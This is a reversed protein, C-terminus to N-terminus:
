DQEPCPFVMYAGISVDSAKEDCRFDTPSGYLFRKVKCDVLRVKPVAYTDTAKTVKSVKGITTHSHGGDSRSYGYWNGVVIEDGLADLFAHQTETTTNTDM